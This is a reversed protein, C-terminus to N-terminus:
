ARRMRAFWRQQEILGSTPLPPRETVAWLASGAFIRMAQATSAERIDEDRVQQLVPAARRWAAVRERIAEKEVETM